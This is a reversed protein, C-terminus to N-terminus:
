LPKLEVLEELADDFWDQYEYHPTVSIPTEIMLTKVMDNKVREIDIEFIAYNIDSIMASRILRASGRISVAINPPALVSASIRGDRLLNSYTHHYHFCIMRLKKRTIARLSGFPATHPTGDENVTAIVAVPTIKRDPKRLIAFAEDPLEPALHWSRSHMDQKESM